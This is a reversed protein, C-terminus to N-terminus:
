LRAEAEGSGAGARAHDQQVGPPPQVGEEFTQAVAQGAFAEDSQRGVEVLPLDGRGDVLGLCEREGQVTLGCFLFECCCGIKQGGM